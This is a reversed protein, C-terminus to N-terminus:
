FPSAAADTVAPAAVAEDETVAEVFAPAAIAKFAFDPPMKEVTTNTAIAMTMNYILYLLPAPPIDQICPFISAAKYSSTLM